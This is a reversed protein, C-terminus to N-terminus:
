IRLNIGTLRGYIWITEERWASPASTGPYRQRFIPIFNRLLPQKRLFGIDADFRGNLGKWGILAGDDRQVVYFTQRCLLDTIHEFNGLRILSHEKVPCSRFDPTGKFPVEIFFLLDSPFCYPYM